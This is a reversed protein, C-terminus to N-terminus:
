NHKCAFVNKGDSKMTMCCLLNDRVRCSFFWCFRLCILYAYFTTQVVAQNKNIVITFQEDFSKKSHSKLSIAHFARTEIKVPRSM